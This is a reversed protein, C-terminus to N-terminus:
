TVLLKASVGSPCEELLELMNRDVYDFVLYLQACFCALSFSRPHGPM